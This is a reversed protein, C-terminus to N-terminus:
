VGQALVEKLIEIVRKNQAPTGVTIRSYEFNGRIILGRSKCKEALAATDVKSNAYLFNAQSPFVDWNMAQLERTLYERGEVVNAVSQKVFETDDLAAM